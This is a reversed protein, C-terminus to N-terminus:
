LNSGIEYTVSPGSGNSVVLGLEVLKRLDAVVTPKSTGVQEAITKASVRSRNLVIQWVALQRESLGKFRSGLLTVTFMNAANRFVPRPLGAAQMSSFVLDIGRGYEELYNLDRMLSAMVSNRSFQMEKINDVTVGPPLNGPNTVEIRDAFVRVQTYSETITYDRHIVANALVERIADEPYEFREVRQTGEITARRSINRLVFAQANDIQKDLTGAIDQNDLIESSPTSGAYRICRIVYRNFPSRESPNGRSFVLTGALTPKLQGNKMTAIQNNQLIADTVTDDANGRGTRMGMERLMRQVKASDLEDVTFADVPTIDFKFAASNRIFHRLEDESIPRDTNGDRICAGRDMGHHRDFCPKKEDPVTNIVMSLVQMGDIDLIKYQPRDGNVIRDNFYNTAREQLEHLNPLQVIEFRRTQQDETVGFCIIGGDNQKNSLATISKWLDEPLGGRAYKFEVKDTESNARLAAKIIAIIEDDTLRQM